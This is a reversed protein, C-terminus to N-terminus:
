CNEGVSHGWRRGVWVFVGGGAVSLQDDLYFINRINTKRQRERKEHRYENETTDLHWLRPPPAVHVPETCLLLPLATGAECFGGKAEQLSLLAILRRQLLLPRRRLLFSVVPMEFPRMNTNMIDDEDQKYDEHAKTRLLVHRDVLTQILEKVEFWTYKINRIQLAM